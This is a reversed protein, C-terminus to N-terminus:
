ESHRRRQHRGAQLRRTRQMPMSTTPARFALTLQGSVNTDDVDAVFSQPSLVSRQWASLAPDTTQLGGYVQQDYDVKKQDYNFRLGPILSLRDTVGLRGRRVRRREHGRLRPRQEATATWSAPRQRWRARRSCFRRRASGQEQTHVPDSEITQGFAFVGIVVNLRRLCKAPM